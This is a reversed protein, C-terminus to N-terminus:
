LLVLLGCFGLSGQIDEWLYFFTTNTASALDAGRKAKIL